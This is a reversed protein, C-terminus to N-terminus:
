KRKVMRSDETHLLMSMTACDRIYEVASANTVLVYALNYRYRHRYRPNETKQKGNMRHLRNLSPYHPHLYRSGDHASATLHRGLLVVMSEGPGGNRGEVNEAKGEDSLDRRATKFM